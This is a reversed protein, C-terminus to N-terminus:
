ADLARRIAAFWHPAFKRVARRDHLQGLKGAMTMAEDFAHDDVPTTNNARALGALGHGNGAERPSRQKQPM